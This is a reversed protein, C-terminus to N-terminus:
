KMEFVKVKYIPIGMAGSVCEIISNKTVIDGAGKAVIIIGEINPFETMVVFPESQSTLNKTVTKENGNNDIDKEVVQKESSSYRILVDVDGVGKIMSLIRKLEYEYDCGNDGSKIKINDIDHKTDVNESIPQKKSCVILLVGICFCTMLIIYVKKSSIINEIHKKFEM